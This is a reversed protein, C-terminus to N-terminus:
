VERQGSGSSPKIKPPERLRFKGYTFFGWGITALVVVFVWNFVQSIAGPTFITVGGFPNMDPYDFTLWQLLAAALFIVGVIRSALHFITRM